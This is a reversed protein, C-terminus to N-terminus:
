ARQRNDCQRVYAGLVSDDPSLRQLQEFLDRAEAYKGNRYRALAELYDDYYRLKRELLEEPDGSFVEFIKLPQSRGKVIVHALERWHFDGSNRTALYLSESAIVQTGFRKTLSELRSALNVTDGIVTTDLRTHSGVTGLMLNGVHLGVGMAITGYGSQQRHRNYVTLTRSMEVAARVGDDVSEPFLALIADGIFKDVFGGHRHIIPGMRGMYANLFRFNDDVSMQESLGTFNRIDNFLVTFSKQVSDGLGVQSFDDRGLHELFERPVFRTFSDLLRLKTSMAEEKAQDREKRLLNIRYGLGVALLLVELMSGIQLGYSTVFNAPVVDINRLALLAGGALLFFWAITYYVAPRYGQVLRIIGTALLILISAFVLAASYRLFMMAGPVLSLLAVVLQVWGFVGLFRGLWPTEWARLYGRAFRLSFFIMFCVTALQAQTNWWPLTPWLYEYALGNQVMLLLAVSVISAVYWLYSRDWLSFYLFLNYLAMVLVVGYYIWLVAQEDHDKETFAARTWITAPLQVASESRIRLYLWSVTERPLELRFVFNRHKWERASFPLLDGGQKTHVVHDNAVVFLDFRDLVPYAIELFFEESRSRNEVAARVWVTERPYGFSPVTQGTAQFAQNHGRLIDEISLRHTSDKLYSFSPSLAFSGSAQNLVVRAPRLSGGADPEAGIGSTLVLALLACSVFPVKM